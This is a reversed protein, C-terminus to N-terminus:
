LLKIATYILWVISFVPPLIISIWYLIQLYSLNTLPSTVRYKVHGPGDYFIAIDRLASKKSNLGLLGGRWVRIFTEERPALDGIDYSFKTNVKNLSLRDSADMILLPTADSFVAKISKITTRSTNKIKINIFLRCTHLKNLILRTEEASVEDESFFGEFYDKRPLAFNNIEISATLDSSRSLLRKIIALVAPILLGLLISIVAIAIKEYFDASM